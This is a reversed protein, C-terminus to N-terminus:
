EDSNGEVKSLEDDQRAAWRALEGKFRDVYVALDDTEDAVVHAVVAFLHGFVKRPGNDSEHAKLLTTVAGFFLSMDDSILEKRREAANMRSKDVSAGSESLSMGRNAKLWANLYAAREMKPKLERKLRQSSSWWGQQSRDDHIRNLANQLGLVDVGLQAREIRAAEVSEPVRAAIAVPAADRDTMVHGIHYSGCFRCLYAAMGDGETALREAIQKAEAETLRQKRRCKLPLERRDMPMSPDIM